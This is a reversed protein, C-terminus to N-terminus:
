FEKLAQQVINIIRYQVCLPEEEGCDLMSSPLEVTM